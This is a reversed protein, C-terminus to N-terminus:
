GSTTAANDFGMKQMPHHHIGISFRTADTVCLSKMLVAAKSLSHFSIEVAGLARFTVAQPMAGPSSSSIESASFARFLLYGLRSEASEASLRKIQTEGPGIAWATVNRAKPAQSILEM